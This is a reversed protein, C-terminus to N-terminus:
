VPVASTLLHPDSAADADSRKPAPYAREGYLLLHFEVDVQVVGHTGFVLRQEEVLDPHCGYLVWGEPRVDDVGLAVPGESHFVDYLGATTPCDDGLIDVHATRTPHRLAELVGQSLETHRGHVDVKLM